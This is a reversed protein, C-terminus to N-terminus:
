SACCEYILNSQGMMDRKRPHHGKKKKYKGFCHKTPFM